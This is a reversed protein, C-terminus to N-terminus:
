QNLVKIKRKVEAKQDGFKLPWEVVKGTAALYNVRQVEHVKDFRCASKLELIISDEVAIDALFDGVIQNEYYVTIAQRSKEYFGAEYLEIL